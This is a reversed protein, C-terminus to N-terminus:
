PQHNILKCIIADLISPTEDEDYANAVAIYAKGTNPALWM